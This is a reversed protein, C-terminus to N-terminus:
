AAKPQTERPRLGRYTLFVAWLVALIGLGLGLWMLLVFNSIQVGFVVTVEIGASADANMVVLSWNGTELSWDL